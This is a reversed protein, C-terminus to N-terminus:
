SATKVLMIRTITVFVISPISLFNPISKDGDPSLNERMTSSTPSIPIGIINAIAM